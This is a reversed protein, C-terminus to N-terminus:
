FDVGRRTKNLYLQCVASHLNFTYLVIVESVYTIFHNDCYDCGDNRIAVFLLVPLVMKGKHLSSKPNVRKVVEMCVM